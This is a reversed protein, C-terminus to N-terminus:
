SLLLIINVAHGVQPRGFPKEKAVPSAPSSLDKIHDLVARRIVDPSCVESKFDTLVCWPLLGPDCPESTLRFEPNIYVLSEM